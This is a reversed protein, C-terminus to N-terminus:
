CGKPGRGTRWESLDKKRVPEVRCWTGCEKVSKLKTLQNTWKDEWVRMGRRPGVVRSVRM